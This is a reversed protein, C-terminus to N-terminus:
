PNFLVEVPKPMLYGVFTSTGNFLSVVGFWFEVVPFVFDKKNNILIEKLNTYNIEDLKWFLMWKMM